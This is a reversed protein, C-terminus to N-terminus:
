GTVHHMVSDTLSGALGSKRWGMMLMMMGNREESEVQAIRVVDDVLQMVQKDYLTRKRM